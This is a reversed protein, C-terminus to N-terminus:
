LQHARRPVTPQTPLTPPLSMPHEMLASVRTRLDGLDVQAPSEPKEPLRARARDTVRELASPALEGIAFPHRPGRSTVDVARRADRTLEVAAAAVTTLNTAAPQGAPLPVWYGRRTHTGTRYPSRGVPRDPHRQGASEREGKVNRSVPRHVTSLVRGSTQRAQDTPQPTGSLTQRAMQAPVLSHDPRSARRKGPSENRASPEPVATV